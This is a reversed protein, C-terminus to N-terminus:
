EVVKARHAQLVDLTEGGRHVFAVIECETDKFNDPLVYDFSRSIVAGTTFAESIQEGAVATLAKRFVHKHTYNADRGEPTQQMDVVNSETLYVTLRVDEANVDEVAYMDVEITLDRSNANYTNQIDIRVSPEPALEEAIYGAWQGQGLQRSEEGAFQRRNVVATPFGLPENLLSMINAGQANSLDENSEDFPTAFFGAHISVAVLREGHQDLLAEIAESGAPCNVCRVGTFEEILVQRQQQDVPTVESSASGGPNLVPPVEECGSVLVILLAFCSALLHHLKITKM